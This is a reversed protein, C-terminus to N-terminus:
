LRQTLTGYGLLLSLSATEMESIPLFKVHEKAFRMRKLIEGVLRALKNDSVASCDCSM